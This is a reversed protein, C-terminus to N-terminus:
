PLDGNEKEPPVVVEIREVSHTVLEASEILRRMIDSRSLGTRKAIVSLKKVHEPELAVSTVIKM